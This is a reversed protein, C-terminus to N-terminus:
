KPSYRHVTRGVGSKALFAQPDFLKTHAPRRRPRTPLKRLALM